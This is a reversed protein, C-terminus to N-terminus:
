PSANAILAPAAPNAAVWDQVAKWSGDAQRKFVTLYPGTMTITPQHTKPDTGKMTLHGQSFALDGSQAVEVRDSTLTVDFNPDKLANVYTSRIASTGVQPPLGPLVFVADIAYPEILADLNKTHFAQNWGAEVTALAQKVKTLDAQNPKDSGLNGCSAVGAALLLAVVLKTKRTTTM